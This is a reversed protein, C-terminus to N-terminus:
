VVHCPKPVGCAFPSDSVSGPPVASQPQPATRGRRHTRQYPTGAAGPYDRQPQPLQQCGSPCLGSRGTTAAWGTVGTGCPYTDEDRRVAISRPTKRTDAGRQPCRTSDQRRPRLERLNADHPFGATVPPLLLVLLALPAAGRPRRAEPQDGPRCLTGDCRSSTTVAILAATSATQRPSSRPKASYRLSSAASCDGPQVCATLRSIAPKRRTETVAAHRCPQCGASSTLCTPRSSPSACASKAASM